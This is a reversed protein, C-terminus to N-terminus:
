ATYDPWNRDKESMVRVSLDPWKIGFQPDNWRVGRESEPSYFQSVHYIVEVDETLTQFGHAFGKPVYLMKYNDETLEVAVWQKYTSSTPRLDIIVDYIAGRICRITKTEEFPAAQYHMGRLTGAKKSFSCNSQAINSVLGHEEFERKCWTRAFFGRDDRRLELEIIFAGKLETETFIM